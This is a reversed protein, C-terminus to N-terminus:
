AGFAESRRRLVRVKVAIHPSCYRNAGVVGEDDLLLGEVAYGLTANDVKCPSAHACSDRQMGM